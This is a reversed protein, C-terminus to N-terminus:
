KEYDAICSQADKVIMEYVQYFKDPTDKRLHDLFKTKHAHNKGSFLKYADNITNIVEDKDYDPGMLSKLEKEKASIRQEFQPVSNLIAKAWTANPASAAVKQAEEQDKKMKAEAIDTAYQADAKVKMTMFETELTAYNKPPDCQCLISYLTSTKYVPVQCELCQVFVGAEYLDGFEM